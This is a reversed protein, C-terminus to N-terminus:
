SAFYARPRCAHGASWLMCQMSIVRCSTRLWAMVFGIAMSVAVAIFVFGLQWSLQGLVLHLQEHERLKGEHVFWCSEETAHQEVEEM